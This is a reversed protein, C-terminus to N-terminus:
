NKPKAETLLRRAQRACRWNKLRKGLPAFDHDELAGDLVEIAESNLKADLLLGALFCKHELTPVMKALERAAKLAEEPKQRAAQADIMTRWARYYSWRYDRQM